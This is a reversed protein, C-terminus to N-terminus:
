EVWWSAKSAFCLLSRAHMALTGSTQAHNFRCGNGFPDGAPPTPQLSATTGTSAPPPYTTMVKFFWATLISMCIPYRRVKSSMTQRRNYFHTDQLRHSPRIAELGSTPGTSSPDQILFALVRSRLLDPFYFFWLFLRFVQKLLILPNVPLPTQAPM